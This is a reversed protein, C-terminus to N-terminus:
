KNISRTSTQHKSRSSIKLSKHRKCGEDQVQSKFPEKHINSTSNGIQMKQHELCINTKYGKEVM